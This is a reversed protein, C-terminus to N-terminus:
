IAKRKIDAGLENLRGDLNEYGRDILEINDIESIGQAVLAALVMTAGARLDPVSMKCAKLRTPGHISIGHFYNPLDNEQDFNYFTRPDDTKPQFTDITTGMARLADIYQFRFPYISEVITSIGKSQTALVAWLPQWDTMFGPHPQTVITSKRLKGKYYFRIGYNGIEVGGGATELTNLFSKLDEKRANEVVVDGKTVIAAIAYSVAENRDPMIRYIVPKLAEVGVIEIKRDPLRRIKAGALNLFNILDDIEPELAANGLLTKGEALVGAMILTETGTHTNKDFVYETGRLKSATVEFSPGITRIIAGMKRLGDFHRDLPRHGIKDGGPAPVVARHLRHLLAPIFLTSARSALGLEVPIVSNTLRAGNVFLTREGASYTTAGLASIIKRTIVVDEIRSFNLLRTEAQILLSAIMIKFSANKAGGLRVVGRLSKGGKIFLKEM